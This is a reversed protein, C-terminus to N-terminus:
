ATQEEQLLQQQQQHEPKIYGKEVGVRIIDKTAYSFWGKHNTAHINLLGARTLNGITSPTVGLMKAAELTTLTDGTPDVTVGLPQPTGRKTSHGPRGLKKGKAGKAMKEAAAILKQAKASREGYPIEREPAAEILVPVGSPFLEPFYTGMKDLERQIERLRIAAGPRALEALYAASSVQM